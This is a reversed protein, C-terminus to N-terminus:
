KEYIYEFIELIEEKNIQYLSSIDVIKSIYREIEKLKEEKVFNQNKELVYSGKGQVSKIFGEKELQDYSKKVTMISIGLDKALSRISTLKEGSKVNEEIIDQKIQNIIQEYIPISSKNDIIIKM